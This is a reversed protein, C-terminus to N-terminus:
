LTVTFRRQDPLGVELLWLWPGLLSHFISGQGLFVSAGFEMSIFSHNQRQTLTWKVQLVTPALQCLPKQPWRLLYCKEATPKKNMHEYFDYLRKQSYFKWKTLNPSPILPTQVTRLGCGTTCPHPSSKTQYKPHQQQCHQPFKYQPNFGPKRCSTSWNKIDWARIILNRFEGSVYM